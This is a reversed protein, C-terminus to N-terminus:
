TARIKFFNCPQDLAYGMKLHRRHCFPLFCQSSEKEKSRLGPGPRWIPTSANSCYSKFTLMLFLVVLHCVFICLFMFIEFLSSNGCYSSVQSTRCRKRQKSERCQCGSETAFGRAEDYNDGWKGEEADGTFHNGEWGTASLCWPLRVLWLSM